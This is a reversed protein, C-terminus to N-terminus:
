MTLMTSMQVAMRYKVPVPRAMLQSASRFSGSTTVTYTTREKTNVFHSQRQRMKLPQSTGNGSKCPVHCPSSLVPQFSGLVPATSGGIGTTKTMVCDNVEILQTM